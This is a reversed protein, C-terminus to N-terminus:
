NSILSSMKKQTYEGYTNERGQFTMKERKLLEEYMKSLPKKNTIQIAFM